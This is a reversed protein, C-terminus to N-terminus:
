ERAPPFPFPGSNDRGPTRYGLCKTNNHARTFMKQCPRWYSHAALPRQRERYRGEALPFSYRLLLDAWTMSGLTRVRDRQRLHDDAAAAAPPSRPPSPAPSRAPRRGVGTLVAQGYTHFLMLDACSDTTMPKREFRPLIGPQRGQSRALRPPELCTADGPTTRRVALWPVSLDGAHSPRLRSLRGAQESVLSCKTATIEIWVHAPGVGHGPSSMPMGPNTGAQGRVM